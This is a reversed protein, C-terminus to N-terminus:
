PPKGAYKADKSISVRVYRRCNKSLKSTFGDLCEILARGRKDPCLNLFPTCPFIIAGCAPELRERLGETCEFQKLSELLFDRCQVLGDVRCPAQLFLQCRHSLSAENQDLCDPMSKEWSDGNCHEAIDKECLGSGLVLFGGVRPLKHMKELDDVRLTRADSLIQSDKIKDPNLEVIRRWAHITGYRRASFHLLSEGPEVPADFAPPIEPNETAAWALSLASSFIWAFVLLWGPMEFRYRPRFIWTLKSGPFYRKLQMSAKM